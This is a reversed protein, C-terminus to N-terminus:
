REVPQRDIPKKEGAKQEGSDATKEDAPEGIIPKLSEVKVGAADLSTRPRFGGPATSPPPAPTNAPRGKTAPARVPTIPPSAAPSTRALPPALDILMTASAGPQIKWTEKKTVPDVLKQNDIDAWIRFEGGREGAGEIISSAFDIQGRATETKNGATFIKIEVPKGILDSPSAVNAYVFGKVRIKDFQVIHAIPEGPQVWEGVQRYVENVVGKFPSAIQRRALENATAELQAEKVKTTLGAVVRDTEAVKVQALARDWQFLFKRLETASVAGPNKQQIEKNSDYEAKSVEVAKNAVELEADSDAQAQAVDREGMAIKEKALTDRNDIEAILFNEDIAEGGKVHVKMLRGAEQAPVRVDNILTVLAGQIELTKAGSAPAQATVSAAFALGLAALGAFALHSTKM